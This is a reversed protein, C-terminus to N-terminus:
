RFFNLCLNLELVLRSLFESLASLVQNIFGVGFDFKFDSLTRISSFKLIFFNLIWRLSQFLYFCCIQSLFVTFWFILEMFFNVSTSLFISRCNFGSVFDMEIEFWLIFGFQIWFPIMFLVFYYFLILFHVWIQDM